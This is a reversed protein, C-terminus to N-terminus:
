YIVNVHGNWEFKEDTFMDMARMKWIYTGNEILKGGYTGDWAADPNKSEWILEGWRNFIELSFNDMSINSIFVRWTNNFADGDPTFSNPAYFIVEPVVQVIGVVTDKCGYQSTVILEVDYDEM